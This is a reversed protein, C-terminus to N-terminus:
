DHSIMSGIFGHYCGATQFCKKFSFLFHLLGHFVHICNLLVASGIKKQFFCDSVQVAWLNWIILLRILSAIFFFMKNNNWSFLLLDNSIRERIIAAMKLQKFIQVHSHTSKKASSRHNSITQLKLNLCPLHLSASKCLDSSLWQHHFYSWNNKYYKLIELMSSSLLIQFSLYLFLLIQWLNQKRQKLM